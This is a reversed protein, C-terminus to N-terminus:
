IARSLELFLEWNQSSDKLYDAFDSLITLYNEFSLIILYNAFHNEFYQVDFFLSIYTVYSM